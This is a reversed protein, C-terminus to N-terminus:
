RENARGMKEKLAAAASEPLFSNIDGGFQAVEKIISSAVFNNQPSTFLLVTEIQQNLDHNMAAIQQEYLFDESNRVGRIIATAGLERAVNVTMENPRKLIEIKSQGKVADKVLQIREDASFLYHKSSNTMVVVAVKDFIKVAKKIVDVHGNTIPDFSGPFLAYSM